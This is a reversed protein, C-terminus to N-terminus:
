ILLYHCVLSGYRFRLTTSFFIRFPQADNCGKGNYELMGYGRGPVVSRYTRRIKEHQVEQVAQGSESHSNEDHNAPREHKGWLVRVRRLFNERVVERFDDNQNHCPPKGVSEQVDDALASVPHVIEGRWDRQKCLWRCVEPKQVSQRTKIQYSGGQSHERLVRAWAHHEIDDSQEEHETENEGRCVMEKKFQRMKGYVLVDADLAAGREGSEVERSEIDSVVTEPWFNPFNEIRQSSNGPKDRKEVGGIEANCPIGGVFIEEPVEAWHCEQNCCGNKAIEPCFVPVRGRIICFEDVHGFAHESDVQDVRHEDLNEVSKM